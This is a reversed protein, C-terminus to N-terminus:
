STSDHFKCLDFMSNSWNDEIKCVFNTHSKNKKKTKWILPVLSIMKKASVISNHLRTWLHQRVSNRRYLCLCIAINSYSPQPLLITINRYIEFLHRHDADICCSNNDQPQDSWNTWWSSSAQCHL